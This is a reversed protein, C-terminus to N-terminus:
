WKYPYRGNIRRWSCVTRRKSSVNVGAVIDSHIDRLTFFICGADKTDDQSYTLALKRFSYNRGPVAYSLAVLLEHQHHRTRLIKYIAGHDIILM